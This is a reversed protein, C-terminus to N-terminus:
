SRVRDMDNLEHQKLLYACESLSRPLRVFGGRRDFATADRRQV